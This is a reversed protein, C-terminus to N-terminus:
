GAQIRHRLKATEQIDKESRVGGKLLEEDMLLSAMQSLRTKKIELNVEMNKEFWEEILAKTITRNGKKIPIGDVARVMLALEATWNDKNDTDRVKLKTMFIAAARAEVILTGDILSDPELAVKSHNCIAGDWFTNDRWRESRVILADGNRLLLRAVVQKEALARRCAEEAPAAGTTELSAEKEAERASDIWDNLFVFGPPTVNRPLAVGLSGETAVDTRISSPYLEWDDYDTEGVPM